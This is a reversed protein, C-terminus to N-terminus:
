TICCGLRTIFAEREGKWEGFGGSKFMWCLARERVAWKLIAALTSGLLFRHAAKEREEIIARPLWFIVVAIEVVTM